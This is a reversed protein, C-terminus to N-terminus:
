FCLVSGEFYLASGEWQRPGLDVVGGHGLPWSSSAIQPPALPLCIHDSPTQLRRPTVNQNELNPLFLYVVSCVSYECM